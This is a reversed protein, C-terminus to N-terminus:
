ELVQTVGDVKAVRVVHDTDQEFTDDHSIVFLQSFGKVNLIQRALNARRAADLNATPEDFFAVDITSTERLLALRVALAAAMQEGGSLQQFTRERGDTSLVIDYDETWRLRARHQQMIDAYLRDAHLSILEVLARTVEPGADRLVGRLHELLALMRALEDRDARAADLQAAVAELRAIEDQAEALQRSQQRLREELAALEAQLAARRDILEGYRDADYDEAVAAREAVRAARQEQAAAVEAELADVTARREALAEAERRHALYRHHDPEHEAQAAREAAIQADLEAYAALEEDLEALRRELAARREQAEARQATLTEREAVVDAARRFDQRPDGLAALEETLRAV